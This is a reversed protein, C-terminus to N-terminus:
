APRGARRRRRRASSAPMRCATSPSSGASSGRSRTRPAARRRVRRAPWPGRTRGRPAARARAREDGALGVPHGPQSPEVDAQGAGDRRQRHQVGLLQRPTPAGQDASPLSSRHGVEGPVPRGPERRGARRAPPPTRRRSGRSGRGGAGSRPARRVDVLQHARRGARSATSSAAHNWSATYSPCPSSSSREARSAVSDGRLRAATRRPPGGRAASRSGGARRRRGRRGPARRRRGRSGPRPGPASRTTCRRRAGRTRGRGRRRTRRLGPLPGARGARSAWGTGCPRRASATPPATRAGVDGALDLLQGGPLGSGVLSRRERDPGACPRCGGSGAIPWAAPRARRRRSSGVHGASWWSTRVMGLPDAGAGHVIEVLELGAEAVMALVHSEEYSIAWLPDRSDYYRTVANIENVMPFASTESSLIAPLGPRTSSSGRPSRRNGTQPGSADDRLYRASPERAEYMHTFVSFVAVFDHELGGQGRVAPRHSGDGRRPQLPRQPRGPPPVPLAGGHVAHPHTPVVGGASSSTSASTASGAFGETLLGIALRGYGSGVDLVAHEDRLGHDRLLRALAIGAAVYHEDDKDGSM